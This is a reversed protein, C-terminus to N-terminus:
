RVLEKSWGVRSQVKRGARTKSICREALALMRLRFGANAPGEIEESSRSESECRVTLTAAWKGSLFCYSYRSTSGEVVLLSDQPLCLIFGFRHALVRIM